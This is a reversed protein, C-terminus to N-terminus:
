GLSEDRGKDERRGEGRKEERKERREKWDNKGTKEDEQERSCIIRRMAKWKYTAESKGEKKDRM